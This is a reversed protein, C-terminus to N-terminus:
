FHFKTLFINNILLTKFKFSVLDVGRHSSGPVGQVTVPALAIPRPRAIPKPSPRTSSKSPGPQPVPPTPPTTTTTTTATPVTARTKSRTRGRTSMSRGSKPQDVYVPPPPLPQLRPVPATGWPLPPTSADVTPLQDLLTPIVNLAPSSDFYPRTRFPSFHCPPPANLPTSEVPFDVPRWRFGLKYVLKLM